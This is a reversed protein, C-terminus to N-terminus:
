PQTLYLSLIDFYNMQIINNSCDNMYWWVNRYWICLRVRNSIFLLRLHNKLFTSKINSLMVKINPSIKSISPRCHYSSIIQKENLANMLARKSQNGFIICGLIPCFLFALSLSLDFIQHLLNPKHCKPLYSITIFQYVKL